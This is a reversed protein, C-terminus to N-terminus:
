SEKNCADEYVEVAAARAAEIIIPAKRRFRKPIMTYSLLSM